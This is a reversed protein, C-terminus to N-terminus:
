ARERRYRLVTYMNAVLLRAILLALLVNAAIMPRLWNRSYEPLTVLAVVLCIVLVLMAGEAFRSATHAIRLDREDLTVGGAEQRRVMSAVVVWGTILLGLNTWLPSTAANRLHDAEAGLEPLDALLNMVHCSILSVFVLSVWAQKEALSWAEPFVERAHRALYIVFVWLAAYLLAAGVPGFDIGLWGEGGLFMGAAGLAAVALLAQVRRQIKTM